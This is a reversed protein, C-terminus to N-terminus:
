EEIKANDITKLKEIEYYIQQSLKRVDEESIHFGLEESVGDNILKYLMKWMSLLLIINVILLLVILYQM